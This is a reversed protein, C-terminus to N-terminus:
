ENTETQNQIKEKVVEPFETEEAVEQFETDTATTTELDETIEEFNDDFLDEMFEDEKLINKTVLYTCIGSFATPMLKKMIQLLQKVFAKAKQNVKSNEGEKKVAKDGLVKRGYLFISMGVVSALLAFIRFKKIEAENDSNIHLKETLFLKLMEGYLELKTPIEAKAFFSKLKKFSVPKQTMVYVIVVSVAVPFLAETKAQIWAFKKSAKEVNQLGKEVEEVSIEAKNNVLSITKIATYAAATLGGFAMLHKLSKKDQLMDLHFGLAKRCKNDINEVTIKSSNLIRYAAYVTVVPLAWKIPKEYKRIWTKVLEVNEKPSKEYLHQWVTTKNENNMTIVEKFETVPEPYLSNVIEDYDSKEFEFGITITSASSNILSKRLNCKKKFFCKSCDYNVLDDKIDFSDDFCSEIYSKIDGLTYTIIPKNNSVNMLFFPIQHLMSIPQKLCLSTSAYCIGDPYSSFKNIHDGKDPLSTCHVAAYDEFSYSTLSDNNWDHWKGCNPCRYRKPKLDLLKSAM